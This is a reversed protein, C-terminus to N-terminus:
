KKQHFHGFIDLTGLIPLEYYKQLIYLLFLAVAVKTNKIICFMRAYTRNKLFLAFYKFIQAVIYLIQFYKSFPCGWTHSYRVCSDALIHGSYHTLKIVLILQTIFNTKQMQHPLLLLWVNIWDNWTSTTLRAWLLEFCYTLNKVYLCAEVSLLLQLPSKWFKLQLGFNKQRCCVRMIM